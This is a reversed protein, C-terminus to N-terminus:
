TTFKRGLIRNLQRTTSQQTENQQFCHGLHLCYGLWKYLFRNLHWRERLATEPLNQVIKRGHQLRGSLVEVSAADQYIRIHLDPELTEGDDFRYSLRITTTFRTKELLEAHLDLCGMVSSVMKGQIQEFDGFLRKLRMYNSEYLDMLAAFTEHSVDHHGQQTSTYTFLGTNM